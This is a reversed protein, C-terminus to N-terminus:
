NFLTSVSLGNHIRAIADAFFPAVSLVKMKSSLKDLPLKVTDLLILERISSEEIRTVASGSLIAHTACAYVSEAGREKLANAANVISGATDIMDDVLIARKGEIDGIINMVESVNATPRRKDVIALPINLKAAFARSRAVSGLDPSVVVTNSLEEFNEKFYRILLPMGRLHDVPIDFFGQLQDCHFDMTLVRDAGATAIINAVLKASIPHRARAKRDQRAYGYYPIVATIRGASARRMADMMILLEMINENVPPSTPQVIFVDAGRVVEDIEIKIEGDSFRSVNSVGLSLGLGNAIAQALEMNANCSFIKINGGCVNM